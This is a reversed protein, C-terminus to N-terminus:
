KRSEQNAEFFLQGPELLRRFLCWRVLREMFVHTPPNAPTWKWESLKIEIRRSRSRADISKGPSCKQGENREEIQCLFL